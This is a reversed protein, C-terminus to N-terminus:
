IEKVQIGREQCLTKKKMKYLPTKTVNGGKVEHFEYHGDAYLVLFDVIMRVGSKFTISVQPIWHVVRQAPNQAKMCMDLFAAHEAEKKSHYTRGNYVTPKNRFKRM